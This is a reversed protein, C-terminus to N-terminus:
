VKIDKNHAFVKIHCRKFTARVWLLYKRSRALGNPCVSSRTGDAVIINDPFDMFWLPVIFDIPWEVFLIPGEYVSQWIFWFFDNRNLILPKTKDKGQPSKFFFSLFIIQYIQHFFHRASEHQRRITVDTTISVEWFVKMAYKPWFSTTFLFFLQSYCNIFKM